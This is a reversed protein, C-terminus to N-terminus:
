YARILRPIRGLWPKCRAVVVENLVVMAVLSVANIFGAALLTLEYSAFSALFAVGLRLLAPRHQMRNLVMWAAITGVIASLGLAAGM